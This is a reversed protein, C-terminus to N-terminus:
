ASVRSSATRLGTSVVGAGPIVAAASAAKDLAGSRKLGYAALILVGALAVTGSALMLLGGALARAESKSFLCTLNTSFLGGIIPISHAPNPIGILCESALSTDSATAGTDASGGKGSVGPGTAAPWNGSSIWGQVKAANAVRQQYQAGGPQCGACREFSQAFNGAVEAGTTGNLAPGSVTSKLYGIQAKLDELCNGTVLSGSDPYSAENWQLFGNSYQGNSDVARAEPQLSSENIGNAMIGVAQPTSFGAGLLQDYVQVPTVTCAM